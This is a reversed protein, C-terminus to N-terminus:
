PYGRKIRDRLTQAPVGYWQSAEVVSKSGGQVDGVAGMM